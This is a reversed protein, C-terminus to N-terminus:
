TAWTAWLQFAFGIFVFALGFKSMLSHKLKLRETEANHEAVTRGDPMPTADELGIGVGAELNPQPPGYKFIIAVGIMGLILGATNLSQPCTM